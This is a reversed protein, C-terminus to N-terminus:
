GYSASQALHWASGSHACATGRPQGNCNFSARLDGGTVGRDSDCESQQLGASITPASCAPQLDQKDAHDPEKIPILLSFPSNARNATKLFSNIQVKDGDLCIM